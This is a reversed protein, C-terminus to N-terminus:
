FAIIAEPLIIKKQNLRIALYPVIFSEDHHTGPLQSHFHVILTRFTRFGEEKLAVTM